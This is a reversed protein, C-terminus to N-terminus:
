PSPGILLQDPEKTPAKPIDWWGRAAVDVNKLDTNPIAGVRPRNGM